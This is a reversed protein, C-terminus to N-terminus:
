EGSWRGPCPLRAPATRPSRRSHAGTAGPAAVVPDAADPVIKLAPGRVLSPRRRRRALERELKAVGSRIEAAASEESVALLTAIRRTSCEAFHALLVATREADTLTVM